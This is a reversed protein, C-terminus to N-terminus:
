FCLPQDIWSGANYEPDGVISLTEGAVWRSEKKGQDDSFTIHFRPEEGNLCLYTLHVTREAYDSPISEGTNRDVDCGDWHVRPAIPLVVMNSAM